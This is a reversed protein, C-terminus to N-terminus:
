MDVSINLVSIGEPIFIPNQEHDFGSYIIRRLQWSTNLKKNTQYSYSPRRIPIPLHCLLYRAYIYKVRTLLTGPLDHQLYMPPYLGLSIFVNIIFVTIIVHSQWNTYQSRFVGIKNSLWNQLSQPYEMRLIPPVFEDLSCLFTYNCTFIIICTESNVISAIIMKDLFGWKM